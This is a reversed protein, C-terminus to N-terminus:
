LLIPKIRKKFERRNNNLLSKKSIISKQKLLNSGGLVCVKKNLLNNGLYSNQKERKDKIGYLQERMKTKKYEAIKKKLFEKRDQNDQYQNERELSELYRDRIQRPPANDDIQNQTIENEKKNKWDRIKDILTMKLRRIEIAKCGWLLIHVRCVNYGYGM